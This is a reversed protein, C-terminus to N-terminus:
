KNKKKLYKQIIDLIYKIDEKKIGFHTVARFKGNLLPNIKIGYKDLYNLFDFPDMTKSPLKFYVMNTQVTSIDIIFGLKLLNNALLKANEHDESLRKVNKTIGILGAAAMIGAQRMGGGIMQRNKRAKLIFDKSGVILSGFPCALDKTLCFTISDADKVLKSPEIGLSVGASFIRAGDIHIKLNYKNALSRLLSMQETNICTGGADNHPNEICILSTKPYLIEDKFLEREIDCPNMFGKQGKIRIPTVGSISSLHGVENVFIHANEEVIISEGREVHTFVSILNGMTGSTVFLGGEKGLKEAALQELKTVTPDEGYFDDGVEANKMAERMELSPMTVTDSKIDIIKVM